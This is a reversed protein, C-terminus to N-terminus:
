VTRQRQREAILDDDREFHLADGGVSAGRVEDSQELDHRVLKGDREVVGEQLLPEILKLRRHARQLLAERTLRPVGVPLRPLSIREEAVLTPGVANPRAAAIQGRSRSRPTPPHRPPAP